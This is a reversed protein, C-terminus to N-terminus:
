RRILALFKEARAKDDDELNAIQIIKGLEEKSIMSSFYNSEYAVLRRCANLVDTSNSFTQFGGEPTKSRFDDEKPQPNLSWFGQIVGTQKLIDVKKVYSDAIPTNGLIVIPTKASDENAVRINISKGIAKLMSDSRLLSPTGKHQTHDGVWKVQNPDIYQYNAVISMKIEFILKVGEPAQIIDNTSCLALDAKSKNHLGMEKCVMGQVAHLNLAKAIPAFFKQCWAEAYRGILANRAQLAKEKTSTSKPAYAFNGEQLHYFLKEKATGKNLEENFFSIETQKNWLNM